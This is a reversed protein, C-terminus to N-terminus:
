IARGICFLNMELLDEIRVMVYARWWILSYIALAPTALIKIPNQATGIKV